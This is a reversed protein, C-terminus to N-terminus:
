ATPGASPGLRTRLLLLRALWTHSPGPHVQPHGQPQAPPHARPTCLFMLPLGKALFHPVFSLLGSQAKQFTGKRHPVPMEAVPSPPLSNRHTVLGEHAHGLARRAPPAPLPCPSLSLGGGAMAAQLEPSLESGQFTLLRPGAVAPGDGNELGEIAMLEPGRALRRNGEGPAEGQLLGRRLEALRKVGLM